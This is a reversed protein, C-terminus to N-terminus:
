FLKDFDIREFVELKGGRTANYIHIGHSKAYKKASEYARFQNYLNPVTDLPTNDKSHHNQKITKDEFYKGDPGIGYSFSFDVGLLYIEKFGMSVAMQLFHYTITGGEGFCDTIKNAFRPPKNFFTVPVRSWTYYGDKINASSSYIDLPIFKIGEVKNIENRSNNFLKIDCVGYYTPRWNVDPFVNYIRNAAFSVDGHQSIKELDGEKLSPGNGIIFCRKGNSYFDQFKLSKKLVSHYKIRRYVELIVLKVKWLSTHIAEIIKKM